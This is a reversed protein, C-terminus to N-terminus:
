CQWAVRTSPSRPVDAQKEEGVWLCAGLLGAGDWVLGGAVQVVGYGASTYLPATLAAWSFVFMDVVHVLVNLSVPVSLHRQSAHLVLKLWQHHMMVDRSPRDGGIVRQAVYTAHIRHCECVFAFMAVWLAWWAICVVFMAVYLVRALTSHGLPAIHYGFFAASPVFAAPFYVRECRRVAARCEQPSLRHVAAALSFMFGNRASVHLWFLPGAFNFATTISNAVSGGSYRHRDGYLLPILVILAFFALALTRVMWTWWTAATACRMSRSGATWTTLFVGSAALLPKCPVASFDAPVPLFAASTSSLPLTGRLPQHETAIPPPRPSAPPRASAM